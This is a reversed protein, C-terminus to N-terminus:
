SVQDMAWLYWDAVVRARVAAFNCFALGRVPRAGAVCDLIKAAYLAHPRVLLGAVGHDPLWDGDFDDIGAWRAMGLIVAVRM